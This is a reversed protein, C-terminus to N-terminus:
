ISATVEQYARDVKEEWSGKRYSFIKSKVDRYQQMLVPDKTHEHNIGIAENLWIDDPLDIMPLERAEKATYGFVLKTIRDHVASPNMNSGYCARQFTNHLDKANMRLATLLAYDTKEQAKVVSELTLSDFAKEARLELSEKALAFVITGALKDGKQCWYMLYELAIECPLLKYKAGTEDSFQFPNFGEPQIAKFARSNLYQFPSLPPKNILEAVSTLSYYYEKSENNQFVTAVISGIQVTSKTFM